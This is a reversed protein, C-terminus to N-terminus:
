HECSTLLNPFLRPNIFEFLSIFEVLVRSNPTLDCFCHRWRTLTDKVFSNVIRFRILDVLIRQVNHLIRSQVIVRTHSEEIVILACMSHAFEVAGCHPSFSIIFSNIKM